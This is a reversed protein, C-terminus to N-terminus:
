KNLILQKFKDNIKKYVLHNKSKEHYSKNSRRYEVGCLDCKVREHSDWIKKAKYNRNHRTNKIDSNKEYIAKGIPKTLYELEDVDYNIVEEAQKLRNQIKQIFVRQIDADENKKITETMRKSTITMYSYKM